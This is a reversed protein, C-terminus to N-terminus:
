CQCKIEKCLINPDINYRNLLIVLVKALKKMDVNKLSNMLLATLNNKSNERMGVVRLNGLKYNGESDIRDISVQEGPYERMFKEYEPIAWEIFQTRTMELKVHNYYPNKGNHNECRQVINEWAKIAKGIPTKGRERRYNSSHLNKCYNCWAYKGDKSLSRNTFESLRKVELCKTCKKM